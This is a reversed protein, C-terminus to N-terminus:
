TYGLRSLTGGATEIVDELESATLGTRYKGISQDHIKGPRFGEPDVGLYESMAALFPAPNSVMEEYRIVLLKERNREIAAMSEEWRGAIIRATNETRAVPLNKWTTRIKYLFSSVVDRGDRYIMIRRLDPIKCLRDLQFVYRPYKDGVVPRRFLRRLIWEVDAASVPRIGSRLALLLLYQLMFVGSRLRDELPARRGMRGLFPRNYWKWHLGRLYVPIRTDLRRFCRFEGTIGIQPHDRCLRFLMTTGSRPHGGIIFAM